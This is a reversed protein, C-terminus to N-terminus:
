VLMNLFIFTKNELLTIILILDFVFLVFCLRSLINIDGAM